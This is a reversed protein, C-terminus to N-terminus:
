DKTKRLFAVAQGAEELERRAAVRLRERIWVALPVGALDAAGAFAQKEQTGLRLLVSESKKAESSKSPRGRRRKQTRMGSTYIPLIYLDLPILNAASLASSSAAGTQEGLSRVARGVLRALKLGSASAPAGAAAPRALPGARPRPVAGGPPCATYGCASPVQSGPKEVRSLVQLTFARRNAYCETTFGKWRGCNRSSHSRSGKARLHQAHIGQDDQRDRNRSQSAFGSGPV